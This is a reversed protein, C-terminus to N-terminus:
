RARWRRAPGAPTIGPEEPPLALLELRGEPDRRVDALGRRHLRPPHRGPGPQRPGRDRPRRQRGRRMSRRQERLLQLSKYRLTVESVRAPDEYVHGDIIDEVNVISAAAPLDAISFAGLLGTHGGASYPVVQITINPRRSTTVLHMLQEHMIEARAVPRYLAGEDILTAPSLEPRTAHALSAHHFRVPGPHDHGPCPSLTAIM